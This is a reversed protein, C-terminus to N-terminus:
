KCPEMESSSCVPPCYNPIAYRDISGGGKVISTNSSHGGEIILRMSNKDITDAAFYYNIGNFKKECLIRDLLRKSIFGGRTNSINRNKFSNIMACIVADPTQEGGGPLEIDEYRAKDDCVCSPSGSEDQSKLVLTGIFILATIFGAIFIVISKM